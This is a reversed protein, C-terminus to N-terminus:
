PKKAACRRCMIKDDRFTAKSLHIKEGCVDCREMTASPPVGILPINYRGVYVTAHRNKPARMARNPNDVM